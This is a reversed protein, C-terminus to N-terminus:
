HEPHKGVPCVAMCLNCFKSGLTELNHQRHESCLAKNTYTKEPHMIDFREGTICGSPCCEACAGCHICFDDPLEAPTPFRCTTVITALRVRPGFEPTILMGSDGMTGLGALRAQTIHSLITRPGGDSYASGLGPVLFAHYGMEELFLCLIHAASELDNARTRVHKTFYYLLGPDQRQFLLGCASVSISACLSIAYLYGQRMVYYRNEDRLYTKEELVSFGILDIGLEKAKLRIKEEALSPQMVM